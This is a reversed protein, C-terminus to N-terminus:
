QAISTFCELLPFLDKDANSLQQWKAILPPMLIDLYRPQNLEGGVADALTGIADYVIRLNRKQYRGFACLLHQLIVELRPALEEAAEEELTAFASCAAEQVRKNTDLIRRLLGMLITDFQEHGKPHGIGQVIFKSYRSLTWCTISRILPFKDDLLPILFSVIEPLHPYLGSICGEAVAGLALVAAEREKWTADDTSALKTQVSPMLTPLIGDGFMNSFIDLAAASCKRLNWINVIDDDQM